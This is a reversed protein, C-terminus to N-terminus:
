RKSKDITRVIVDAVIVGVVAAIALWVFLNGIYTYLTNEEIFGVDEIVYGAKMPDLENILEGKPSVIVSVGTNASCAIYRGVEIARLQAHYEHVRLAASDGFWSDNTEIFLLEAGERVSDLSAQEYISDFCILSGINGYETHLIGADEGAALDYSLMNIELLSPLFITFLDRMPVYEGFPVLYRKSYIDDSITGDPMFTVASNYYKVGKNSFTGIILIIENDEALDSMWKRAYVDSIIPTRVTTEPWIVIKAGAEAAKKTLGGYTDKTDVGLKETSPLNGQLAAVKVTEREAPRLSMLMVGAAANAAFIAACSVACIRRLDARYLAYALLANVLVILFTVFYSGFLSATQLTFLVGTQGLPLRGWPVGFWFLTQTWEFIAWLLAFVVPAFIPFRSVVRGRRIKVFLVFVFAFTSAQLLPLGIIAIAIVAISTIEDLGAFELPYMVAFWHWVAVFYTTYFFLGYSYASRLRNKEDDALSLAVLVGPVVSIWQLIGLQTYCTTLGSLFGSVALFLFRYGRKKLFDLRLM